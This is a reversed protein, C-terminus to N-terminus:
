EVDSSEGRENGPQAGDRRHQKVSADPPAGAEIWSLLATHDGNHPAAHVAERALELARALQGLRAYCHAASATIEYEPPEAHALAVELHALAAAPEDLAVDLLHGLNHHYWPNKPELSLARRYSSVATRYNG